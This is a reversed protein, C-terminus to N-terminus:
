KNLEQNLGDNLYDHEKNEMDSIVKDKIKQVTIEIDQLHSKILEDGLDFNISDQLSRCQNNLAMIMDEVTPKFIPHTNM